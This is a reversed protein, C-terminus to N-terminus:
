IIPKIQKERRELLDYYYREKEIREMLSSWHQPYDRQVMEVIEDKSKWDSVYRFTYEEPEYKPLEYGSESLFGSLDKLNLVNISKTRYNYVGYLLEFINSVWHTSGLPSLFLNLVTETIDDSEPHVSNLIETHLASVMWEYPERYIFHYQPHIYRQSDLVEWYKLIQPNPFIKDLYRTGCKNPVILRNDYFKIGM